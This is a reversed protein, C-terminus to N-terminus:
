HCILTIIQLGVHHGMYSHALEGITGCRRFELSLLIQNKRVTNNVDFYPRCFLMLRWSFNAGLGWLTM